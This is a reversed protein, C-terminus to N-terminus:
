SGHRGESPGTTRGGVRLRFGEVNNFGVTSLVPGYDIIGDHYYGSSLITVVDYLQMFKKNTQLTDLMKYIGKEDKNLNEFRNQEWYEDSKTFISEEKDFTQEKYFDAPKSTNFQHNRYLTTRKGYMGRSTEKKSLAFDTMM